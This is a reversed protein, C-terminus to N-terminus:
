TLLAFAVANNAGHVAIAPWLSGTREYVGALVLGFFGLQPVVAISDPGTYHFLGWVTAPILAAPLFSMRQRLGGFMFGRFFLEESLPAVAIILAAAAVNALAGEGYGLDRTVDEQQPHVIAGYVLAFALYVLYAIM